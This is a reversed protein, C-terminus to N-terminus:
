VDYGLDSLLRLGLMISLRVTLTIRLREAQVQGKRRHVRHLSAQSESVIVDVTFKDQLYGYLRLLMVTGDVM